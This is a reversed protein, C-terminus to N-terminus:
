STKRCFNKRQWGGFVRVVHFNGLGSLFPSLLTGLSVFLQSFERPLDLVAPLGNYLKMASQTCVGVIKLFREGRCQCLDAPPRDV